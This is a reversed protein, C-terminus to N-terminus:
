ITKGKAGSNREAEREYKEGIHHLFSKLRDPISFGYFSAGCRYCLAITPVKRYLLWDLLAVVPLSLGYTMPVFVIGILMVLCGLAQNFNKQVYFQNCSCFPCVDFRFQGSVNAWFEGCRPCSLREDSSVEATTLKKCKSCEHTVFPMTLRHHALGLPARRVM